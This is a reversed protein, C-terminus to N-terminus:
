FVEARRYNKGHTTSRKWHSAFWMFPSLHIPNSVEPGGNLGMFNQGALTFTVMVPTDSTINSDDFVTCYFSAADKANGDFWLCPYIPQKM